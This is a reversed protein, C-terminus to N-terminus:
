EDLARSVLERHKYFVLPDLVLIMYKKDIYVSSQNPYPKADMYLWYRIKKMNEPNNKWYESNNWKEKGGRDVRLLTSGSVGAGIIVPSKEEEWFLYNAVDFEFVLNLGLLEGTKINDSYFRERFNPQGFSFSIYEDNMDYNKNMMVTNILRKQYLRGAIFGLNQVKQIEFNIMIMKVFLFCMLVFLINRKALKEKLLVVMGFVYLGLRGWYMLRFVAFEPYGSVAFAFRSALFLSMILIVIVVKNTAKAFVSGVSLLVILVLPILYGLGMFSFVFFLQSFGRWLEIPLDFVFKKVPKIKINYMDTNIFQRELLYGYILKYVIASILVLVGLYIMRLIVDKTKEKNEVYNFIRKGVFLVFVFALNPPYSGLVGVFGLVFLLSKYLKLRGELLFLLSIGVLSWVMFPFFLYVYYMLAYIHPNVGIFLAILVCYKNPLEFYKGILISQIVICIFGSLFTFVPLIHADLFLLTFLHQSYRAEFLGSEISAGSKLYGWDHNGWWFNCLMYFYVVCLLGLSVCITKAYNKYEKNFMFLAKYILNPPFGGGLM